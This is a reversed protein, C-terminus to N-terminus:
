HPAIGTRRLIEDKYPTQWGGPPVHRMNFRAVGSDHSARCHEMMESRSYRFQSDHTKFFPPMQIDSIPWFLTKGIKNMELIVYGGIQFMLGLHDSHVNPGPAFVGFSKDLLSQALQRGKVGTILWARSIAPEYRRWFQVREQVMDDRSAPLAQMVRFFADLTIKTLWREVTERTTAAIGTADWRGGHLRPDGILTHILDLTEDVAAEGKSEAWAVLGEVLAKLARNRLAQPGGQMAQIPYEGLPALWRKLTAAIGARVPPRARLTQGVMDAVRLMFASKLIDARDGRDLQELEATIDPGEIIRQATRRIAEPPDFLAWRESFGRLNDTLRERRNDIWRALERTAYSDPDMNLLYHKWLRKVSTKWCGSDAWALYNDMLERRESWRHEEDWLIWPLSKRHRYELRSLDGGGQVLLRKTEELWERAPKPEPGGCRLELERAIAEIRWHTPQIFKPPNWTKNAEAKFNPPAPTSKDSSTM